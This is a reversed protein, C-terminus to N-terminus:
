VKEALRDALIKNHFALCYWGSFANVPDSNRGEAYERAASIWIGLGKLSAFVEWWAFVVGDFRL